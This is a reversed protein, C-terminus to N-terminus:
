KKINELTLDLKYLKSEVQEYDEGYRFHLREFKDPNEFIDLEEWALSVVGTKADMMSFEGHHQIMELSFGSYLRYVETIFNTPPQPNSDAPIADWNEGVVDKISFKDENTFIFEYIYYSDFTKGVDHVFILKM